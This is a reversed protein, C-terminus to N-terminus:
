TTPRSRPRRQRPAAFSDVPLGDGNPRLYVEPLDAWDAQVHLTRRDFVNSMYQKYLAPMSSLQLLPLGHVIHCADIRNSDGTPVWEFTDYGRMAQRFAANEEDEMTAPTAVLRIHEENAESYPFTDGDVSLHPALREFLQRLRDNAPRNLGGKQAEVVNRV